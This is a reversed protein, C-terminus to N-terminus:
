LKPEDTEQSSATTRATAAPPTPDANRERKHTTSHQEPQYTPTHRPQPTPYNQKTKYQQVPLFIYSYQTYM